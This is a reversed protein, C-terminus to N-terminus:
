QELTIKTTGNEDQQLVILPLTDDTPMSRWITDSTVRGEAISGIRMEAKIETPLISLHEENHVGDHEHETDEQIEPVFIFIGESTASTITGDEDLTDLMLTYGSVYEEEIQPELADGKTYRGKIYVNSTISNGRYNGMIVLTGAPITEQTPNGQEDESAYVYDDALRGIGMDLFEVNDGPYSLFQVNYKSTDIGELKLRNVDYAWIKDETSGERNFYSIYTNEAKSHNISFDGNKAVKEYGEPLVEPTPEVPETGEAVARVVQKNSDESLAVPTAGDTALDAYVKYTGTSPIAEDTKPTLKIGTVTTPTTFTVTDGEITYLSSDVVNDYSIKVTGASSVQGKNGLIDIPLIEYEFTLNNASGILDVYTGTTTFGIRKGNRRIEYGQINENHGEINVIVQKPNEPDIEATATTSYNPKGPNDKLRQRRSEDTLYYIAREEASFKRMETKAEESLVVGWRTFFETLDKEAIKSSAVAFKDMDKFANLSEDTRYSKYIQNYFNMPNEGDDYALHLQWYMALHTFLGNPVGESGVSVKEFAKEYVGSKELRSPLINTKGDYTQGMLSFINNTVEAKGLRDMVHGIEHGIGWGFLSNEEQGEQLTSTPKGNMLPAVSDYGIGIHSGSAYMFANGFMKMYRINHRTELGGTETNDIGYTKHMVVMLEEWALINQYMKEVQEDISSTNQKIGELVKDAPLSLLVNPLSIESQNLNQYTLNGKLTPVYVELEQIFTKIQAKIKEEGGEERVLTYFDRLELTPIKYGGIVQLKIQDANEGNYTIYLSGGRDNNVSGIKPITIVNRGSTLTIPAANLSDAQEFFQTAVLSVTEGAPIDAFITVKEGARGVFGLPQWNNISIGHNQNDASPNISYIDDKIYGLNETNNKLLSMAIDLEKILIEKDVVYGEVDTVEEKLDLIQQETVGEVLKTRSDNAFLSAVRDAIDNYEYFVVESANMNTPSGEWQATSVKIKVVNEQKPFPFVFYSKDPGQTFGRNDSVIQRGNGSLDDQETWVTISYSKFSNRYQGDLRPVWVLYDMDKAENFTFTVSSDEWWRRAVWSTEYNGDIFWNADFGNPYLGHDYFDKHALSVSTINTNPIINKTPIDPAVIVEKKPTAQAPESYGSEGVKNQSTVYITYEKNNELGTLKHSTGTIDSAVKTPRAEGEKQLYVNYTRANEAAKWSVTITADGATAKVFDPRLPLKEAEPTASVISSKKGEWGDSTAAVAFYYTTGNELGTITAKTVDTTVTQSLNDQSTGYYVKYGTVNPFQKWSLSVEEDGKVAVVGKVSDDQVIDENVIDGIVNVKEIVVNGESSPTVNIVIKKVPKRSGLNVVVKQETSRKSRASATKLVSTSSSAITRGDADIVLVEANEAGQPIVVEVSSMEQGQEGELELPISIDEGVNKPTFTVSGEEKFLDEINGNITATKEIEEKDVKVAKSVVIDTDFVEPKGNPVIGSNVIAIDAVTVQGDGNLDLDNNEQNINQELKTIDNIDVNGDATVDGLTMTDATSINVRKSYTATSLDVVTTQYQKGSLKLTYGDAAELGEIRFKIVTVKGNEETIEASINYGNQTISTTSGSLFQNLEIELNANNGSLTAKLSKELLDQKTEPYKFGIATEINTTEKNSDQIINAFAPMIASISLTSSLGLTLLKKKM